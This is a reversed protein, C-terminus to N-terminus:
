ENMLSLLNCFTEAMCMQVTSCCWHLLTHLAWHSWLIKTLGVGHKLTILDPTLLFKHTGYRAPDTFLETIASFGDYQIILTGDAAYSQQLNTLAQQLRANFVRTVNNYEDLCGNSDFPGSGGFKTLMIPSCGQPSHNGVIITRAGGDHLQQLKKCVWSTCFCPWLFM